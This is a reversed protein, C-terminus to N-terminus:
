REFIVTFHVEDDAIPNAALAKYAQDLSEWERVKAVVGGFLQKDTRWGKRLATCLPDVEVEIGIQFLHHRLWLAIEFCAVDQFSFFDDEKTLSFIKAKKETEMLPVKGGHLKASQLFVKAHLLAPRLMKQSAPRSMHNTTAAVIHNTIDSRLRGVIHLNEKQVQQIFDRLPMALLEGFMVHLDFERYGDGAYIRLNKAVLESGKPSPNDSLQLERAEAVAFMLTACPDKAQAIGNLSCQQTIHVLCRMKDSPISGCLVTGFPLTRSVRGACEKEDADLFPQAPRSGLWTFRSMLARATEVDTLPAILRNGISRGDASLHQRFRSDLEQLKVGVDADAEVSYLHTRSLLENLHEDYPDDDSVSAFHIQQMASADLNWLTKATDIAARTHARMWLAIFLRMAHAVTSQRELQDYSLRLGAERFQVEAIKEKPLVMLGAASIQSRESFERKHDDLESHMSMLVIPPLESSGAQEALARLYEQLADVPGAAGDELFLDLFVAACELFQEVRPRPAGTFQVVFEPEPFARQFDGKLQEVQRARAHFPALLDKLNPSAKENFAASLLVDQVASDTAFYAAAGVADEVLPAVTVISRAVGCLSEFVPDTTDAITEYFNPVTGEVHIKRLGILEDDVVLIKKPM